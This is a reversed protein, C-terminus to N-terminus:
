AYNLPGAGFITGTDILCVQAQLLETNRQDREAIKRHLEQERKFRTSADSRLQEQLENCRDQWRTNSETTYTLERSAWEHAKSKEKLAEIEKELEHM